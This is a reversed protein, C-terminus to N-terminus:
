VKLDLSNFDMSFQTFYTIKLKFMSFKVQWIKAIKSYILRGLRQLAYFRNIHYRYCTILRVVHDKCKKPIKDVEIALTERRGKYDSTRRFTLGDYLGPITEHLLVLM